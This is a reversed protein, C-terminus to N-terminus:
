LNAETLGNYTQKSLKVMKEGIGINAASGQIAKEADEIVREFKVSIEMFQSLEDNARQHINEIGHFLKEIREYAEDTTNEMSSRSDKSVSSMASNIAVSMKEIEDKLVVENKRLSLLNDNIHKANTQSSAALSKVEDAVVAFGRGAEGARAAEIAANLALLNTQDSTSSIASALSAIDDFSRLFIDLEQNLEGSFQAFSRIENSLSSTESCISGLNLQLQQLAHKDQDLTEVITRLEVISCHISQTLEEFFTLREKSAGNVRSANTLVQQSLTHLSDVSESFQHEPKLESTSTALEDTNERQKTCVWWVVLASIAFNIISLPWNVNSEGFLSNFQNVTNLLSGLLIIALIAHFLSFPQTNTNSKM